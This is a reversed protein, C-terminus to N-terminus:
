RGLWAALAIITSALVAALATMMPAVYLPKVVTRTSASAVSRVTIDPPHIKLKPNPKGECIYSARITYGKPLLSPPLEIVAEEAVELHADVTDVSARQDIEALIPVQLDSARV